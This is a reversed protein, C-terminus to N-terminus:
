FNIFVLSSEMKGEVVVCTYSYRKCYAKETLTKYKSCKNYESGWETKKTSDMEIPRQVWQKIGLSKEFGGTVRFWHTTKLRWGKSLEWCCRGRQYSWKGSFHKDKPKTDSLGAEQGSRKLYRESLTVFLVLLIVYMVLIWLVSYVEFARCTCFYVGVNLM